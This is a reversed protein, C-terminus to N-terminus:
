AHVPELDDTGAHGEGSDGSGEPDDHGEHGGHGDDEDEDTRDGVWFAVLMCAGVGVFLGVFGEAM